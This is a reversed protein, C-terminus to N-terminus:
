SQSFLANHHFDNKWYKKCHKELQFTWLQRAILWASDTKSGSLPLYTSIWFKLFNVFVDNMIYRSKSHMKNGKDSIISVTEFM